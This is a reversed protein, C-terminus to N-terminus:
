GGPTITVRAGALVQNILTLVMAKEADTLQEGMVSRRLLDLAGQTNGLGLFLSSGDAVALDFAEQNVTMWLQSFRDCKNGERAPIIGGTCRCVGSTKHYSRFLM